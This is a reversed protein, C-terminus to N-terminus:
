AEDKVRRYKVIKINDNVRDLLKNEERADQETVGPRNIYYNLAHDLMMLEKYRLQM